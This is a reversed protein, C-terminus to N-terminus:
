DVYNTKENCSMTANITSFERMHFEYLCETRYHFQPQACVFVFLLLLFVIAVSSSTVKYDFTLNLLSLVFSTRALSTFLCFWNCSIHFCLNSPDASWGKAQRQHFGFHLVLKEVCCRNGWCSFALLSAAGTRQASFHWLSEESNQCCSCKVESVNRLFGGSITTDHWKKKTKNQEKEFACVCESFWM